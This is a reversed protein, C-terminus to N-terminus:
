AGYAGSGIKSIQEYAEAYLEKPISAVDASAAGRADRLHLLYGSTLSRKKETNIQSQVLNLIDQLGPGQSVAPEQAVPAAIWPQDAFSAGTSPDPWSAPPSGAGPASPQPSGAGPAGFPNPTLPQFPQVAQVTVPDTPAPQAAANLWGPLPIEPMQTAAKEQAEKEEREKKAKASERTKKVPEPSTPTPQVSVDGLTTPLVSTFPNYEPLGSGDGEILEANKSQEQQWDQVFATVAYILGISGKITLKHM